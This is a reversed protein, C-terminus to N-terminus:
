CQMQNLFLEWLDTKPSFLNATNEGQLEAYDIYKIAKCTKGEHKEEQKWACSAAEKQTSFPEHILWISEFIELFQQTNPVQVSYLAHPQM